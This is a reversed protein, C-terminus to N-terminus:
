YTRMLGENTSLYISQDQSIRITNARIRAHSAYTDTDVPYRDISQLDFSRGHDTSYSLGYEKGILVLDDKAAFAGFTTRSFPDSLNYVISGMACASPGALDCGFFGSVNQSPVYFLEYLDTGSMHLWASHMNFNYTVIGDDFSPSFGKYQNLSAVNQLDKDFIVIGYRSSSFFVHDSPGVFVQYFSVFDTRPCNSCTKAAYSFERLDFTKGNDKSVAVGRSTAAYIPDGDQIQALGFTRLDNSVDIGQQNTFTVKSFDASNAHKKWLQNETQGTTALIKGPLAFVHYVSKGSLVGTANPFSAFTQGADTSRYIGNATAGYIRNLTDLAVDHVNFNNIATTAIAITSFTQGFDISVKVGENTSVYLADDTVNDETGNPDVFVNKVATDKLVWRFPIPDKKPNCLYPTEGESIYLGKETAVFLHGPRTEIREKTLNLPPIIKGPFVKQQLYVGNIKAKPIENLFQSRYVKVSKEDMLMKKVKEVDDDCTQFVGKSTAHFNLRTPYFSTGPPNLYNTVSRVAAHDKTAHARHLITTGQNPMPDFIEHQPDTSEFISGGLARHAISIKQGDSTVDSIVNSMLGNAITRTEFTNGGDNSISLGRDTAVIMKKQAHDAWIDAVHNSALQEYGPLGQPIPVFRYPPQTQAFVAAGFTFSLIVIKVFKNM